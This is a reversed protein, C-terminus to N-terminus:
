EELVRWSLRPNAHAPSVIAQVFTAGGAPGDVRVSIRYSPQRPPEGAPPMGQAAAVSPPTLTCNAVTADGAFLCLREVVHRVRFADAVNITAAEAPYSALTQLAPPVGRADAGAQQSAYYNHAADDVSTDVVRDRFLAAVDAEIAASAALMAGRRAHVNTVVISSTSAARLL